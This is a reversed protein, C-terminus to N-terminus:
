RSRPTVFAVREREVVALAMSGLERGRPAHRVREAGSCMALNAHREALEAARREGIRSDCHGLVAACPDRDRVNGRTVRHEQAETQRQGLDDDGVLDDDADICDVIGAIRIAPGSYMAANWASAASAVFRPMSPPATTISAGSMVSDFASMM